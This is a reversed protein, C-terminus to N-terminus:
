GLSIMKWVRNDLKSWDSSKIETLGRRYAVGTGKREIVLLILMDLLDNEGILVFEALENHGLDPAPHHSWVLRCLNKGDHSFFRKKQGLNNVGYGVQLEVTYSWFFLISSAISLSVISKPIDKLTIKTRTDDNRDGPAQILAGNGDLYYFIMGNGKPDSMLQVEVKGVWGLWSWSPFNCKTICGDSFRMTCSDLRRKPSGYCEWLLTEGLFATPLAWIFRQGTEKELASLIGAFADLGDSNNTLARGSYEEVLERYPSIDLRDDRSSWPRRFNNVSGFCHRFASPSNLTEWVGDECWSAKQCEWYVQEPSFILARRSLIKEQFTWGRKCWLSDGLYQYIHSRQERSRWEKWEQDLTQLLSIGNISFPRQEQRTSSHGKVGPLGADADVGSAAVITVSALGYILDMHPIFKGKEAEDDQRICLCDVWLYKEGLTQAVEIADDITSLVMERSLSWPERFRNETSEDLEPMVKGCQVLNYKGWVYSLAAYSIGVEYGVFYGKEEHLFCDVVCKKEVDILRLWPPREEMLSSRCNDHMENCTEKWKRFLRTDAVLPRIRGSFAQEPASREWDFPSGGNCFDEVKLPEQNCKQFQLVSVYRGGEASLEPVEITVWFRIFCRTKPKCFVREFHFFVVANQIDPDKQKFTQFSWERFYEVIKRCFDCAMAGDLIEGLCRRRRRRWDGLVEEYLREYESAFNGHDQIDHFGLAEFKISYCFECLTYSVVM